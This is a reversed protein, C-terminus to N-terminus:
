IPREYEKKTLKILSAVHKLINGSISTREREDEQRVINNLM